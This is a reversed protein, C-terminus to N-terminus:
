TEKENRGRMRKTEKYNRRHEPGTEKENGKPKPPTGAGDRKRNRKTGAANRGRRRKMEKENRRRESGATEKANGTLERPTGAGDRNRKMRIRAANRKSTVENGKTTNTNTSKIIWTEFSRGM